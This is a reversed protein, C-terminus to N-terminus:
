CAMPHNLRGSHPSYGFDQWQFMSFSNEEKRGLRKMTSPFCLLLITKDGKFYKTSTILFIDYSSDFSYQEAQTAFRIGSQSM